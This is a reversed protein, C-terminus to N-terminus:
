AVEEMWIGNGVSTSRITDDWGPNATTGTRVPVRRPEGLTVVAEPKNVKGALPSLGVDEGEGEAAHSASARTIVYVVVAAGLLWYVHKTKM